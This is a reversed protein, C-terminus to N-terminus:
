VDCEDLSPEDLWDQIATTVDIEGDTLFPNNGAELDSLWQQRLEIIMTCNSAFREYYNIASQFDELAGEIDGAQARAIGRIDGYFRRHVSPALEVMRDCIEIVSDREVVTALIGSVCYARGIEVDSITPAIGTFQANLEATRDAIQQELETLTTDLMDVEQQTDQVIQNAIGAGVILAIVLIGIAIAVSYSVWKRRNEAKRSAGIYERHLSSPPPNDEQEKETFGDGQALWEEAQKVEDGILLRDSVRGADDWEEARILYRTHKKVYKIETNIAQNLQDFAIDFDDDIRCYVWNIHSLQHWNDNALQKPDRGALREEMARDKKYDVNSAFKSKDTVEELMVPIIRKNKSFAYDLEMTCVVSEMAAPSMIFLVNDSCEIGEKIEEWWNEASRPIDEWDIWVDKNVQAFSEKLRKALVDNSHSYSIFIDHMFPDSQANDM